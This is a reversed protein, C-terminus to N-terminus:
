QKLIENEKELRHVKQELLITVSEALHSQVNIAPNNKSNELESELLKIKEYAFQLKKELLTKQSELDNKDSGIEDIKMQLENIFETQMKMEKKMFQIAESESNKQQLMM